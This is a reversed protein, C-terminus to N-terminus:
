RLSVPILRLSAGVTGPKGVHRAAAPGGGIDIQGTLLPQKGAIAVAAKARVVRHRHSLRYGHNETQQAIRRLLDAGEPRLVIQILGPCQPKQVAQGCVASGAQGPSVRGQQEIAHQPLCVPVSLIVDVVEAGGLYGARHQQVIVGLRRVAGQARHLDIGILRNAPILRRLRHRIAQHPPFARQQQVLRSLRHAEQRVVRGM